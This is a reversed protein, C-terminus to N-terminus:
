YSSNCPNIKLHTLRANELYAESPLSINLTLNSKSINQQTNKPIQTRQFICKQTYYKQILIISTEYVYTNRGEMNGSFNQYIVIEKM